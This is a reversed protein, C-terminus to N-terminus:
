QGSNHQDSNHQDLRTGTIMAYAWMGAFLAGVFFMAPVLFGSAVVIAQLAWGVPYSWPYRLLGITAVFLVCLVAGGGLAIAPPAADLGFAVLAGLFVVIVEFGLVISALSRRVSRPGGSRRGAPEPTDPTVTM